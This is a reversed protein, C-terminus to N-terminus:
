QDYQPQPKGGNVAPIGRRAQQPTPRNPCTWSRPRHPQDGSHIGQTTPRWDSESKETVWSRLYDSLRPAQEPKYTGTHMQARLQDLKEVVEHQTKGTRSIRKRKGDIFGLDISGEWRQHSKSYYVSGSGQARRTSKRAM